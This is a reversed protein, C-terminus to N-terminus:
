FNLFFKTKEVRSIARYVNSIVLSPNDFGFSRNNTFFTSGRFAKAHLASHVMEAELLVKLENISFYM